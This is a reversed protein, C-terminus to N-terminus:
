KTGKKNSTILDQAHVIGSYLGTIIIGIAYGLAVFPLALIQSLLIFSKM